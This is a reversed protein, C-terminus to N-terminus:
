FTGFVGAAVGGSTPTVFVSASGSADKGAGLGTAIGIAVGTGLSLLGVTLAVDAAIFKTRISDVVDDGCRPSCSQEADSKESLAIGGLAGFIGVGVLGVAGLAWAAPSVADIGGGGAGPSSSGGLRAEIRRNKEGERVVIEVDVPADGPREFRLTHPGPDVAVAKGDLQEVLVNGDVSIKVDTVDHGAADLVVFTVTPLSTDVQGLWTACDNKTVEPCSSEACVLFESRAASLEGKARLQQGEEYSAVCEAQTPAAFVPGIGLSLVGFFTGVVAIARM